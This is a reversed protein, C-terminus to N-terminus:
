TYRIPEAQENKELKKLRWPPDGFNSTLMGIELGTGL